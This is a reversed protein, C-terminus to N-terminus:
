SCVAGVSQAEGGENIEVRSLLVAMDGNEARREGRRGEEITDRSDRGKECSSTYTRM